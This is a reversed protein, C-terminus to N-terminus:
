LTHDAADIAVLDDGAHTFVLTQGALTAVTLSEPGDPVSIFGRGM